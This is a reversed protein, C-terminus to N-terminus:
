DAQAPGLLFLIATLTLIKFATFRYKTEKQRCFFSILFPFKSTLMDNQDTTLEKCERSYSPVFFLAM